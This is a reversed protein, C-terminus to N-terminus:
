PSGDRSPTLARSAPCASRQGTPFSCHRTRRPPRPSLRARSPTSPARTSRSARATPPSPTRASVDLAPRTPSGCRPKPASSPCTPCSKSDRTTKSRSTPPFPRPRKLKQPSVTSQVSAIRHPTRTSTPWTSPETPASNPSTIPCPPTDARRRSRTMSSPSRVTRPSWPSRKTRAM